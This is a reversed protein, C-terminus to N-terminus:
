DVVIVTKRKPIVFSKPAPLGLAVASKLSIRGKSVLEDLAKITGEKGASSVALSQCSVNCPWAAISLELWDWARIVNRIPKGSKGYRALEEPAPAGMDTPNFGISVGIGAERAITLIDDPLPNGPLKFLRIRCIWGNPKLNASHLAGVCSDTYLSHDVSIKRNRFFYETNAGSPIVIEGADDIDDTTAVVTIFRDQGTEQVSVDKGIIGRVGLPASPDLLHRKRIRDVISKGQLPLTM